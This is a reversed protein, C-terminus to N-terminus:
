ILGARKMVRMAKKTQKETRKFSRPLIILRTKKKGQTNKFNVRFHSRRVFPKIPRFVVSMIADREIVSTSSYNISKFIEYILYLAGLSFVATLLWNQANYNIYTKYLLFLTSLCYIAILSTVTYNPAVPNSDAPNKSKTFILKDPLVHCYERSTKFTERSDM